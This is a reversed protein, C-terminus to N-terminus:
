WSPSGSTDMEEEEDEESDFKKIENEDDNSFEVDDESEYNSTIAFLSKHDHCKASGACSFYCIRKLEKNYLFYHFSWMTSMEDEFPDDTLQIAECNGLGGIANDIDRWMESLFNPKQVTFEALQSNINRVVDSIPKIIFSEPKTDSFNYDLLSANLTQILDIYLGTNVLLNDGIKKEIEKAEKKDGGAKKRSYIECRGNLILGGVEAEQMCKTLNELAINELYKM